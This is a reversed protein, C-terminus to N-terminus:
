LKAKDWAIRYLTVGTSSGEPIAELPFSDYIVQYIRDNRTGKNVLMLHSVHRDHFYALLKQAANPKKLIAPVNPDINGAIDQIPLETFLATRGHDRIGLISGAPLHEREWDMSQWGDHIQKLTPQAIMSMNKAWPMSISLEYFRYQTLIIVTAVAISGLVRAQKESFIMALFTGVFVFLLHVVPNIYRLGHFDPFYWQYAVLAGFFTVIYLTTATALTRSEKQTFGYLLAIFCLISSGTAITILKELQFVNWGVIKLYPMLMFHQFSFHHWGLAIERRGIQNALFPSGTIAVEWSTIIAWGIFATIIFGVLEQWESKKKSSQFFRILLLLGISGAVFIGDGRTMLGFGVAAGTLLGRKMPSLKETGVGIFFAFALVVFFTFIATDMGNMAEFFANGTLLALLFAMWAATVNKTTHKTIFFVTLSALSAFFSSLILCMKIALSKGFLLFNISMLYTWLFPSGTTPHVFDYSFGHGMAINRAVAIEIFADDILWTTLSLGKLSATLIFVAKILLIIGATLFVFRTDWLTKRLTHM